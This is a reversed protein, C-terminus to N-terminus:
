PVEQDLTYAEQLEVISRELRHAAETLQPSLNAVRLLMEHIDYLQQMVDWFQKPPMVESSRGEILACVYKSQSMGRDRALRELKRKLKPPLRITTKMTEQKMM